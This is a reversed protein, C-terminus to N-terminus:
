GATPPDYKGPERYPSKDIYTKLRICIDESKAESLKKLNILFGKGEWENLFSQIVELDTILVSGLIGIKTYELAGFDSLGRNLQSKLVEKYHTVQM